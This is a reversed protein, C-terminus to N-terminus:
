IFFNNKLNKIEERNLYNELYEVQQSKNEKWFEPISWNGFKWYAWHKEGLYYNRYAQVTDPNKYKDPMAQAPITNGIDPLNPINESFWRLVVESQHFKCYRLTYQRCLELSHELLWKWNSLSELIWKSCPHHIFSIRYPKEKPFDKFIKDIIVQKNYSLNKLTYIDNAVYYANALMQSSELIMKVIHKDPMQKAAEKPDESLYFINMKNGKQKELLQM